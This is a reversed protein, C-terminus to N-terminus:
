SLIYYFIKTYKLFGLYGFLSMPSILVLDLFIQGKKSKMTNNNNNMHKQRAM